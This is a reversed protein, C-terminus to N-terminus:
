YIESGFLNFSVTSTNAYVNVVDTATLTIGITYTILDNAPVQTDYAIYQASSLTAGGKQIAIRINAPIGAQNCVALTSVVTSNGAPVTYLATQTAASPNVQGLVKYAITM